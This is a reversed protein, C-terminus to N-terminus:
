LLVRTAGSYIRQIHGRELMGNKYKHIPSGRFLLHVQVGVAFLIHTSSNSLYGGHPRTIWFAQLWKLAKALTKEVFPMVNAM